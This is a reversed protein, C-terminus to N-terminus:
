GSVETEIEKQIKLESLDLNVHFTFFDLSFSYGKETIEAVNSILIKQQESISDGKASTIEGGEIWQWFLEGVEPVLQYNLCNKVETKAKTLLQVEFLLSSCKETDKTNISSNFKQITKEFFDSIEKHDESVYVIERTRGRQRNAIRTSLLGLSELYNVTKMVTQFSLRTAHQLDTLSNGEEATSLIRAISYLKKLSPYDM